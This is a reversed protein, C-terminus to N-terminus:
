SFLKYVIYMFAFKHFFDHLANLQVNINRIICEIKISLYFLKNMSNIMTRSLRSTKLEVKAIGTEKKHRQFIMGFLDKFTYGM